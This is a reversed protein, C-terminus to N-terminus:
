AMLESLLPFITKMLSFIEFSKEVGTSMFFFLLISLALWPQLSWFIKIRVLDEHVSCISNLVMYQMVLADPFSFELGLELIAEAGKLFNQFPLYSVSFM